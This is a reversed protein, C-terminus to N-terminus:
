CPITNSALFKSCLLNCDLTNTGQLLLLTDLTISKVLIIVKFYFNNLLTQCSLKCFLSLSFVASQFELCSVTTLSTILNTNRNYSKMIIALSATENNGFLFATSPIVEITFIKELNSGSTEENKIFNGILTRRNNFFTSDRNKIIKSHINYATSTAM